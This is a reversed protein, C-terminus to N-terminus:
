KPTGKRGRRGSPDLTLIRRGFLRADISYAGPGLVALVATNLASILLHFADHGGTFLFVALQFLCSVVCVHPTLLGALLSFVPLLFGTLLWSSTGSSCRAAADVILTACVSARLLVLAAGVWGAPFM